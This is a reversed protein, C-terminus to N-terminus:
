VPLPAMSLVIDKSRFRAPLESTFDGAAVSAITDSGWEPVIFITYGATRALDRILAALSTASPLVEILLTPRERLIIDRASDLLKAEIGEADIKVLDRGAILDRFPRGSVMIKRESSRNYVEVGEILHAGVPADRKEDPVNLAVEAPASDPIVAVELVEVHALGNRALNSRLVASIAAVPEAVTYPASSDRAGLVTFLGVNGGIELIAHAKRCLAVWVDAVKGEYGQVGFWYIADM